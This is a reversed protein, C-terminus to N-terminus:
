RITFKRNKKGERIKEDVQEVLGDNVVSSWESWAEDPVNPREDNLQRNRKRVMKDSMVNEGYIEALQRHIEILKINRANLFRIVSRAECDIPDAITKFKKFMQSRSYTPAMYSGTAM